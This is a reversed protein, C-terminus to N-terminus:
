RSGEPGLEEGEGSGLELGLGEFSAARAEKLLDSRGKLADRPM